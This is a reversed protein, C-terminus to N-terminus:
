SANGDVAVGKLVAGAPTVTITKAASGGLPSKWLLISDYGVTGQGKLGVLWAKTGPHSIVRLNPQDAADGLTLIPAQNFSLGFYGTRFVQIPPATSIADTNHRAVFLDSNATDLALSGHIGLTPLSGLIVQAPDFGTSTGKRLRPGTLFDPGVTGGDAMFAYVVGFAAAVGTGGTDGSTKISALTVDQIQSSANAVVWIQTDSEGNETIYLTNTQADLSAQGFKGNPLRGTTSLAFSVVEGSPVAGNQSRINSVRVITGTDSVMYLIGLHSDFCLGGWALNSVKNFLSSSLQYSPAVTTASDYLASLDKWILVKNSTSDFTYLAVGATSGSAGDPDKCGTALLLFSAALGFLIRSTTM